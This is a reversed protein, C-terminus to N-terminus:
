RVMLCSNNNSKDEILQETGDTLQCLNLINCQIM